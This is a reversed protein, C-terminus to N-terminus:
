EPVNRLIPKTVLLSPCRLGSIVPARRMRRRVAQPREDSNDPVHGRVPPRVPLPATTVPFREPRVRVPRLPVHATLRPRARLPERIGGTDPPASTGAHPLARRRMTRRRRLRPRGRPATGPRSTARSPIGIPERRPSQPVPIRKRIPRVAERSTPFPRRSARPDIRRLPALIIRERRPLTTARPAM